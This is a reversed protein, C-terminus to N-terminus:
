MPLTLSDEREYDTPTRVLEVESFRCHYFVSLEKNYLPPMTRYIEPRMQYDGGACSDAYQEICSNMLSKVM